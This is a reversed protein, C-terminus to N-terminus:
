LYSKRTKQGTIIIMLMKIRPLMEDIFDKQNSCYFGARQDASYLTTM